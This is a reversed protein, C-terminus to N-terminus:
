RSRPHRRRGNDLSSRIRQNAQRALRRSRIRAGRLARAALQASEQAVVRSRVLSTDAGFRRLLSDERRLTAPTSGDPDPSVEVRMFRASLVGYRQQTDAHDFLVGQAASAYAGGASKECCRLSQMAFEPAFREVVDWDFCIPEQPTPKKHLDTLVLLLGGLATLRKMEAIAADLNDVHDLSNFSCVIDFSHDPFPISEAGATVYTMAHDAAGMRLYDDALPDVGVRQRAMAAWELSGRPGCGIDLVRKDTYDDLTLGFHETYFSEFWSNELQDEAEKRGTWYALEGVRKRDAHGQDKM